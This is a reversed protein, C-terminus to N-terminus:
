GTSIAPFLRAAAAVLQRVLGATVLSLWQDNARKEITVIMASGGDDNRGFLTIPRSDRSTVM